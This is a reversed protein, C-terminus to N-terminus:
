SSGPTVSRCMASCRDLSTGTSYTSGGADQSLRRRAGPAERNRIIEPDSALSVGDTSGNGERWPIVPTM